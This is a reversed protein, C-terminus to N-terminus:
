IGRQWAHKIQTQIYQAVLSLLATVRKREIKEHCVDVLISFGYLSINDKLWIAFSFYLYTCAIARRLPCMPRTGRATVSRPDSPEHAAEDEM